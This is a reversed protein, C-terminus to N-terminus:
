RAALEDGVIAWRGSRAGVVAADAERPLWVPRYMAATRRGRPEVRRARFSSLIAIARGSPDALTVDAGLMDEGAPTTYRVCAWAETAGAALVQVREISFPLYLGGAGAVVAQLAADALGEHGGCGEESRSPT